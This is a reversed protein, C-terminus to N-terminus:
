AIKTKNSITTTKMLNQTRRRILKDSLTVVNKVMNKPRKPISLGRIKCWFRRVIGRVKGRLASQFDATRLNNVPKCGVRELLEHCPRHAPRFPVLFKGHGGARHVMGGIDSLVM